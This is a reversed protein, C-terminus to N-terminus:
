QAGSLLRNKYWKTNIYKGALNSTAMRAGKQIIPLTAILPHGSAIAAALESQNLLNGGNESAEKLGPFAGASKGTPNVTNLYNSLQVSPSPNETINSFSRNLANQVTPIDAQSGAGVERAIPQMTKMTKYRVDVAKLAAMQEPTAKSEIAQNLEDIISQAALSSPKDTSNSALQQLVSAKGTKGVKTLEKIASSPLTGDPNQKSQIDELIDNFTPTGIKEVATMIPVIHNNIPVNGIDQFVKDYAASNNKEADLYSKQNVTTHGENNDNAGMLDATTKNVQGTLNQTDSKSALKEVANSGNTMLSAPTNIGLQDKANKIITAADSNIPAPTLENNTVKGMGGGLIGGGLQASPSNPFIESAVQAGVGGGIATPLSVSPLTKSGSGAKGAVVAQIIANEYKGAITQPEHIVDATLPNASAPNGVLANGTQLGADAITNGTFIPNINTMRNYLEDNKPAGMLRNIGYAAEGMSNTLANVGYGLWQPIANIGKVLSSPATEALDLATSIQPKNASTQKAQQMKALDAKAGEFPDDPDLTQTASSAVTPAQGAAKAALDAKAGEFPDDPDNSAMKTGTSSQPAFNPDNSAIQVGQPLQKAALQQHYQNVNKIYSQTEAPLQSNDAGSKVWKDVNTPGWNYAALVLPTNGKYKNNMAQLYDNGVRKREEPSNDKAPKVGYGPDTLTSPMTQMPGVAGKSSIANPDNRSEQWQVAQNLLPDIPYQQDSSTENDDISM